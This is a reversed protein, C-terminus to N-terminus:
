ETATAGDSATSLPLGTETVEDFLYRDVAMRIARARSLGAADCFEILRERTRVDIQVSATEIFRPRIGRHVATGTLPDFDASRAGPIGSLRHIDAEPIGALPHIDGVVDFSDLMGVIAESILERESTARERALSGLLSVVAPTFGVTLRTGSTNRTMFQM